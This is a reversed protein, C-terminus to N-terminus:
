NINIITIVLKKKRKYYKHRGQFVNYYIITYEIAHYMDHSIAVLLEPYIELKLSEDTQFEPTCVIKKPTRFYKKMNLVDFIGSSIVHEEHLKDIPLGEIKYKINVIGDQFIKIATIKM